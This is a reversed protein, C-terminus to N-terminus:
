FGGAISISSGTVSLAVHTSDADPGFFLLGALGGLAVLGGGVALGTGVAGTDYTRTCLREPSALDCTGRGNIRLLYGGVGALVLGGALVTGSVYRPMSWKEERPSPSPPSVITARPPAVPKVVAVRPVPAPTPAVKPSPADIKIREAISGAVLSALHKIEAIGCNKCDSQDRWAGREPYTRAVILSVVYDSKGKKAAKNAQVKVRVVLDATTSQAINQLCADSDCDRIQGEVKAESIPVLQVKTRAVSSLVEGLGNLVHVAISDQIEAAIKSPLSSTDIGIAVSEPVGARAPHSAFLLILIATTITRM